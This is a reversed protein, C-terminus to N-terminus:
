SDKCPVFVSYTIVEGPIYNGTIDYRGPKRVEKLRTCLGFLENWRFNNLTQSPLYIEEALVPSSLFTLLVVLLLKM